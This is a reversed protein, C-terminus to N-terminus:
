ARRQWFHQAGSAIKQIKRAWARPAFFKARGLDRGRSVFKGTQNAAKAREILHELKTNLTPDPGGNELYSCEIYNIFFEISLRKSICVHSVCVPQLNGYISLKWPERGQM